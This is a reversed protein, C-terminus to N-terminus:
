PTSTGADAGDGSEAVMELDVDPEGRVTLFRGLNVFIAPDLGEYEEPLEVPKVRLDIEEEMLEEFQKAFEDFAATGEAIEIAKGNEDKDSLEKVLELRQKDLAQIEDTLPKILKAIRYNIRAALGKAGALQDLGLRARWVESAKVKM